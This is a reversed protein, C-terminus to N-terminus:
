YLLFKHHWSKTFHNHQSCLPQSRIQLTQIQCGPFSEWWDVTKRRVREAKLLLALKLKDPQWTLHQGLSLVALSLCSLILLALLSCIDWCVGTKLSIWSQSTLKSSPLTATTVTRRGTRRWLVRWSTWPRWTNRRLWCTNPSVVPSVCM